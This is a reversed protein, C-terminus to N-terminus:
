DLINTNKKFLSNNSCLSLYELVSFPSQAPANKPKTILIKTPYREKAERPAEDISKISKTINNQYIKRKINVIILRLALKQEVAGLMDM